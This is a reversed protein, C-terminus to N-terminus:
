QEIFCKSPGRLGTLHASLFQTQHSKCLSSIKQDIHNIIDNKNTHYLSNTCDTSYQIGNTPIDDISGQAVDVLVDVVEVVLVDLVEEVVLVDVVEVVLVDLVEEVVLVDVVEVVVLAVVYTTAVNEKLVVQSIM